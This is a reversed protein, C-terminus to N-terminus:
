SQICSHYSSSVLKIIGNTKTVIFCHGSKAEIYEKRHDQGAGYKMWTWRGAGAQERRSDSYSYGVVNHGTTNSLICHIYAELILACGLSSYAFDLSVGGANMQVQTPANRYPMCM